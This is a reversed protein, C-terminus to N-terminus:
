REDGRALTALLGAFRADPARHRSGLARVRLARGRLRLAADEQEAIEIDSGTFAEAARLTLQELAQAEAAAGAAMGADLLRRTLAGSM